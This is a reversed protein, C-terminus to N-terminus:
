VKGEISSISSISPNFSGELTVPVLLVPDRELLGEMESRRALPCGGRTWGLGNGTKGISMPGRGDLVGMGGVISVNWLRGLEGIRDGSDGVTGRLGELKDNFVALELRGLDGTM